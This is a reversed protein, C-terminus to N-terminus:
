PVGRVAQLSRQFAEIEAPSPLTKKPVARTIGPNVRQYVPKEPPPVYDPNFTLFAKLYVRVTRSRAQTTQRMAETHRRVDPFRQWAETLDKFEEGGGMYGGTLNELEKHWSDQLANNNNNTSEKEKKQTDVPQVSLTEENSVPDQIDLSYIYGDQKTEEQILIGREKGLEIGDYVAQRSLGTLDMLRTVTLRDKTKHWGVTMRCVALVVKLESKEMDPM